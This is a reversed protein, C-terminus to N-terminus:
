VRDWLPDFLERSLAAWVSLTPRREFRGPATEQLQRRLMPELDHFSAEPARANGHTQEAELQVLWEEYGRRWELLWRDVDDADGEFSWESTLWADHERQGADRDLGLERNYEAPDAVNGDVNVVGLVESVRAGAYAVAVIAGLSHGVLITPGLALADRVADIDALHAALSYDNAAETLGHGRLDFSAVRFHRALRPGVQDWACINHSLGHVLLISPGQGGYDRVATRVDDHRVFRDAWDM